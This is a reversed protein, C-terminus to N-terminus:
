DTQLNDINRGINKAMVAFFRKGKRSIPLRSLVCMITKM